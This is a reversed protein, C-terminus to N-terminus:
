EKVFKSSIEVIATELIGISAIIAPTYSPELFAIVTSAITSLGGSIGVILNFIKKSM